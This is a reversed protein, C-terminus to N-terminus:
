NIMTMNTKKQNV